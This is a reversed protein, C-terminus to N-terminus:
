MVLVLSVPTPHLSAAKLQHVNAMGEFPPGPVHTALENNDETGADYSILDMTFSRPNGDEDFLPLSNALVIGDNTQVLMTALSLYGADSSTSITATVTGGPIVVGEPPAPFAVVGSVADSGGALAALPAHNGTEALETLEASAAEGSAGISFGHGHTVFIPPSFIQGGQGPAGMTLNTLMVEFDVPEAPMEPMEVVAEVTVTATPETWGFTAGVDGVGAIGPHPTIVGGETPAREMGGFPPGPVHTALENNDETGADYSILDMTFSRPSGDEDFLPLSNGLVIGDNTEVLMTALSLYGASASVMTTVSGGPIVVGDPPAPFAVIGSVADSQGALEALPAHNGTEALETLQASAAEGSAGISFGHGHTIFIPPSFIQGGQGPAGMTLNTLTVKFEVAEAMEPMEPMEPTEPTMPTEPMEPAPGTVMGGQVTVDIPTATADSVLVNSLGIASDKAEVISFTATALTGDGDATPVGSATPLGAAGVTVSTDTVIPATAFAGAPLYDGNAISVYSLATPDFTVTVQYGAVGVGGTININVTLQEGAAPSEISAPDISVTQGYAMGQVVLLAFVAFIALFTNPNAIQRKM